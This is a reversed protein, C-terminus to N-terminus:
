PEGNDKPEMTQSSMRALRDDADVARSSREGWACPHCHHAVLTSDHIARCPGAQECPLSSPAMEAAQKDRKAHALAGCRLDDKLDILVRVIRDVFGRVSLIQQDM